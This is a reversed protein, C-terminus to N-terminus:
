TCLSPELCVFLATDEPARVYVFTLNVCYMYRSGVTIANKETYLESLSVSSAILYMCMYLMVCSTVNQKRKLMAMDVFSFKDRCLSINEPTVLRTVEM